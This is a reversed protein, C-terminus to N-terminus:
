FYETNPKDKYSSKKKFINYYYENKNTNAVSKILIIVHFTLLIKEIPLFDYSDITIKAFNHNISDTIGGKEILLYRIKVCIKDCYSYDFLVLYRIRDHIKIFADIKYLRIRLRKAGASTKYSISYILIMEHNEKYLTEDLLIDTLYSDRNRARIIDDFYYCTRNKNDTEKLEDKSEM